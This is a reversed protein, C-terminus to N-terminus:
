ESRTGRNDIYQNDFRGRVYLYMHGGLFILFVNIIKINVNTAKLFDCVNGPSQM